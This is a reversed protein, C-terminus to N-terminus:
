AVGSCRPSYTRTSKTLRRVLCTEYTRDDDIPRGDRPGIRARGAGLRRRRPPGHIEGLENGNKRNRCTM